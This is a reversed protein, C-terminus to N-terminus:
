IAGALKSSFITVVFQVQPRLRATALKPITHTEPLMIHVVPVLTILMAIGCIIQSSRLTTQVALQSALMPGFFM